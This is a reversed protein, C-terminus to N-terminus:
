LTVVLFVANGNKVIKVNGKWTGKSKYAARLTFSNCSKQGM